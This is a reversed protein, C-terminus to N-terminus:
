LPPLSQASHEGSDSLHREKRAAQFGPPLQAIEAAKQLSGANRQRRRAAWFSSGSINNKERSGSTPNEEQFSATQDGRTAQREAKCFLFITPNRKFLASSPRRPDSAAKRFLFRTSNARSGVVFLSRIALDQRSRRTGGRPFLKVNWNECVRMKMKSGFLAM